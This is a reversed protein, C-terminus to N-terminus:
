KQLLAHLFSKLGLVKLTTLECPSFYIFVNHPINLMKNLMIAKHAM